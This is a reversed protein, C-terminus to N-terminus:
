SRRCFTRAWARLAQPGPAQRGGRARQEEQVTWQQEEPVERGKEFDSCRCVSRERRPDRNGPPASAAPAGSPRMWSRGGDEGPGPGGPDGDAPRHPGRAPHYLGNGPTRCAWWSRAETTATSSGWATPPAVGHKIGLGSRAFVLAVYDPRPCPSPSALPSSRGGAPPITVAEDVCAHLDLNKKKLTPALRPTYRRPTKIKPYSPILSGPGPVAGPGPRVGGPTETTFMLRLAGCAWAGCTGAKDALFLTKSNLIENPCGWAKVM